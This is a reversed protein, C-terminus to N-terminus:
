IKCLAETDQKWSKELVQKQDRLHKYELEFAGEKIRFEGQPQAERQADEETLAQKEQQLRMLEEEYRYRQTSVDKGVVTFLDLM